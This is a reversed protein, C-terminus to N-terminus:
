HRKAEVLDAGYSGCNRMGNAIQEADSKSYPGAGVTWSEKPFRVTEGLSVVRAYSKYNQCHQEFEALSAEALNRTEFTTAVVVFWAVQDAAFVPAPVVPPAQAQKKDAAQLADQASVLDASLREVQAKLGDSEQRLAALEVAKDDAGEKSRIAVETAPLLVGREAIAGAGAAVLGVLAALAWPRLRATRAAVLQVSLRAAEAKAIDFEAAKAKAQDLARQLNVIEDRLRHEEAHETPELAERAKLAALDGSLRAIETKAAGLENEKAKAEALASQLASIDERLRHDDDHQASGIFDIPDPMPGNAAGRQEDALWVEFAPAATKLRAALTTRETNVKTEAAAKAEVMRQEFHKRHRAEAANWIKRAPPEEPYRRAFDYLTREDGTAFARAAAAVGERGILKGLRDFLKIWAPDNAEGAWKSLDDTHIRNFPPMLACPAVFVPVYTGLERAFDAEAEVWESEIAEPSWCALVAKAEKLRARIVAGFREGASIERDYWADVGLEALRAAIPAVLARDKQSYSIFVEAM